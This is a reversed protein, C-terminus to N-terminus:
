EDRCAHLMCKKLLEHSDDKILKRHVRYRANRLRKALDPYWQGDAICVKALRCLQKLRNNSLGFEQKLNVLAQDQKGMDSGAQAMVVRIQVVAAADDRDRPTAAGDAVLRKILKNRAAGSSWSLAAAINPHMRM